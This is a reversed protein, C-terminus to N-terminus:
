GRKIRKITFVTFVVGVAFHVAVCPLISAPLQYRADQGLNTLGYAIRQETWIGWNPCAANLAFLPHLAVPWIVARGAIWPSAWVPWSLWALALITVLASALIPPIRLNVLLRATAAVAAVFAALVLVCSAFALLTMTHSTVALLWVGAIGAIIGIIVFGADIARAPILALPPVLLAAFLISGLFWDLSEGAIFYCVASMTAGLLLPILLSLSFRRM